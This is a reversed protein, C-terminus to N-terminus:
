PNSRKSLLFRNRLKQFIVRIFPAHKKRLFLRKQRIPVVPSMVNQRFVRCNGANGDFLEIPIIVGDVKETKRANKSKAEFEKSKAEIGDFEWRDM